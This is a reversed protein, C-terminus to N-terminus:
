KFYGFSTPKMTLTHQKKIKHSHNVTNTDTSLYCALPGAIIAESYAFPIEVFSVLAAV